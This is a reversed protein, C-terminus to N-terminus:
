APNCVGGAPRRGRSSCNSPARHRARRRTRPRVDGCGRAHDAGPNELAAIAARVSTCLAARCTVTPLTCVLEMVM